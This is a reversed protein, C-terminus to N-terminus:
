SKQKRSERLGRGGLTILAIGLAFFLAAIYHGGMPMGISEVLWLARLAIGGFILFGTGMMINLIAESRPVRRKPVPMEWGLHEYELSLHFRHRREQRDLVISVLVAVVLVGLTMM